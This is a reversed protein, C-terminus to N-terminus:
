GQAMAADGPLLQTPYQRGSEDAVVAATAAPQHGDPLWAGVRNLIPHRAVMLQTKVGHGYRGWLEKVMWLLLITQWTSLNPLKLPDAGRKLRIPPVPGRGGARQWMRQAGLALLWKFLFM